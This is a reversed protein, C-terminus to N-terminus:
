VIKSLVGTKGVPGFKTKTLVWLEGSEDESINTILQKPKNNVTLPVREWGKNTEKLAYFNGEPLKFFGHWPWMKSADAFIYLGQLDSRRGRYIYGGIVSMGLEHGYEFIPMKIKKLDINYNRALQPDQLLSGEFIRWGCNDGGEVQYVSERKTEGVNGVFCRGTQRDFSFRWPNRLGWVWLLPHVGAKLPNDKPAVIKSSSVDMRLISGKLTKTNQGHGREGSSYKRRLGDGLSLYLYGDPGFLLGGGNHSHAEQEIELLIQESRPDVTNIDTFRFVSLRSKHNFNKDKTPTSYYIYILPVKPFEPHLEIGLLGREDYGRNLGKRALFKAPKLKAMNSTLDLVPKFSGNLKVRYLIGAQDALYILDKSFVVDVPSAFGSAVPKITIERQKLGGYDGLTTKCYM